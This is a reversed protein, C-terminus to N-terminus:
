IQLAWNWFTFIECEIEEEIFSEEYELTIINIKRINTKKIKQINTKIKKKIVEVPLFPMSFIATKKQPLYLDIAEQYYIKEDRKCIELFIMNEFLKMFDKQFTFANKITFDGLFIKKPARKQSFKEVFFLLGEEQLEESMTYFSDKSIKHEKKIINYIQFLSKKMGQSIAFEKFVRHKLPNPIATKIIEQMTKIINDKPNLVIKPYTGTKAFINFMTELNSYKKYFSLFEEFDLPSVKITEFGELERKKVCSIIIEECKPPNFSFDFNDLALIRINKEKIFDNLNEKIEKKNIREDEFDIYLSEKANYKNLHDFIIYSKGSKKAGYLFSKKSTISVKRDLINIKKFEQEYLFDLVNM